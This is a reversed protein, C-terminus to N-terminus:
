WKFLSCSFYELRADSLRIIAMDLHVLYHVLSAIWIGGINKGPDNLIAKMDPDEDSEAADDDGPAVRGDEIDSLDDEEEEELEDEVEAQFCSCWQFVTVIQISHLDLIQITWVHVTILHYLEQITTQFSSM